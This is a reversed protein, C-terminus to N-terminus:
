PYNAALNAVRKQQHIVGANRSTTCGTGSGEGLRLQAGRGPQARKQCWASTFAVIVTISAALRAVARIALVGGTQREARRVLFAASTVAGVLAIAALLHRASHVQASCRNDQGKGRRWATPHVVIAGFFNFLFSRAESRALGTRISEAALSSVAVSTRTDRFLGLTRATGVIALADTASADVGGAGSAVEDAVLSSAADRLQCM